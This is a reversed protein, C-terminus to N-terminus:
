APTKFPMRENAGYVSSTSALLLHRVKLRKAEELIHFTGVLNSATYAEPHELSYRVGAQAALHVIVEPQAADATDRLAQADELMLVHEAFGNHAKLRAHRDRKLTLDYYDTFGDVGFVEHGEGLLREALHYGIFGATGTVLIRM